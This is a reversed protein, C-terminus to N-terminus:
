MPHNAPANFTYVRKKGPIDAYLIITRRSEDIEMRIGTDAAGYDAPNFAHSPNNLSAADLPLLFDLSDNSLGGPTYAEVKLGTKGGATISTNTRLLYFNGTTRSKVFSTAWTGPSFLTTYGALAVSDNRNPITYVVGGDLIFAQTNGPTANVVLDTGSSAPNAFSPSTPLPLQSVLTCLNASSNPDKSTSPCKFRVLQPTPLTSCGSGSSKVLVFAEGETQTTAVVGEDSLISAGLASVKIYRSDTKLLDPTYATFNGDSGVSSSSSAFQWYQVNGSRDGVVLSSNQENIALIQDEKM